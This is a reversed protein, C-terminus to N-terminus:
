IKLLSNEKEMISPYRENGIFIMCLRDGPKFKNADDKTAAITHDETEIVMTMRHNICIKRPKISRIDECQVKYKGCLIKIFKCMDCYFEWATLIAISFVVYSAIHKFPNGGFPSLTFFLVSAVLLVVEACIHHIIKSSKIIQSKSITKIDNQM